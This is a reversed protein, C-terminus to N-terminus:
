IRVEDLDCAFDIIVGELALGDLFHEDVWAAEMTEEKRFMFDKVVVPAGVPDELDCGRGFKVTLGASLGAGEAGNVQLVHARFVEVDELNQDSSIVAVDVM